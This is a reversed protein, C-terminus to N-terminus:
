GLIKKNLINKVFIRAYKSTLFKQQYTNFNEYLDPIIFKMLNSDFSFFSQDFYNVGLLFYISVQRNKLHLIFTPINETYHNLYDSFNFNNQKLFKKLFVVSNKIKILNMEHDPGLMLLEKQYDSYSRIAKPTLFYELPFYKVDKYLFYPSNFFDEVNINEHKDFFIKIREIKNKTDEDLTDFNKRLRYPKNSSIRYAKVFSNYIFLSDNM